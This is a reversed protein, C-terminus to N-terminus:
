QLLKGDNDNNDVVLKFESIIDVIDLIDLNLQQYMFPIDIDICM